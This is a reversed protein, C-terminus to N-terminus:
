KIMRHLNIQKELRVSDEEEEAAFWNRIITKNLVLLLQGKNLFCSKEARRRAQMQELKDLIMKKCKFQDLFDNIEIDNMRSMKKEDNKANKPVTSSSITFHKRHVHMKPSYGIKKAALLICVAIVLTENTIHERMYRVKKFFGCALQGISSHLFYRECLNKIKADVDICHVMRRFETTQRADSDSNGRCIREVSNEIHSKKKLGIDDISYFGQQEYEVHTMYPSIQHSAFVFGCHMCVLDANMTEIPADTSACIGCKMAKEPRSLFDMEAPIEKCIINVVKVQYALFQFYELDLDSLVCKTLEEM